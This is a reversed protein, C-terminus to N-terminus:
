DNQECPYRMRLQSLDQGKNKNARQDFLEKMEQTYKMFQLLYNVLLLKLREFFNLPTQLVIPKTDYDSFSYLLFCLKQSQGQGTPSVMSNKLRIPEQFDNPEVPPLFSFFSAKQIMHIMETWSNDRNEEIRMVNRHIKRWTRGEQEM